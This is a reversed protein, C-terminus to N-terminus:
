RQEELKQIVTDFAALVEAQTRNTDDNFSELGLIPATTTDVNAPLYPFSLMFFYCYDGLMKQSFLDEMARRIAGTACWCVAVEDTPVAATGHVDRADAHQTWGKKVYRRALSMVDKMQDDM